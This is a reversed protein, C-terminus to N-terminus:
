KCIWLFYNRTSYIKTSHYWKCEMILAIFL